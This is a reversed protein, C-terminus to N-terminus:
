WSATQLLVGGPNLRRSLSLNRQPLDSLFSAFDPARYPNLNLYMEFLVTRLKPGSVFKTAAEDLVSTTARQQLRECYSTQARFVNTITPWVCAALATLLLRILPHQLKVQDDPMDSLPKWTSPDSCPDDKSCVRLVSTPVKDYSAVSGLEKAVRLLVEAPMVTPSQSIIKDVEALCGTHSCDVGLRMPLDGNSLALWLHPPAQSSSPRMTATLPHVLIPAGYRAQDPVAPLIPAESKALRDQVVKWLIAGDGESADYTKFTV